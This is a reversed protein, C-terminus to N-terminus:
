HITRCRIYHKSLPNTLEGAELIQHQQSSAPKIGCSGMTCLFFSKLCNLLLVQHHKSLTRPKAQRQKGMSDLQASAQDMLSQDVCRMAHHPTQAACRFQAQDVNVCTCNMCRHHGLRTMPWSSGYLLCLSFWLLKTKVMRHWQCVAIFTIRCKPSCAKSCYRISSRM